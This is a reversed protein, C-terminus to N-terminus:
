AIEEYFTRARLNISKLMAPTPERMGRVVQSVFATSVGLERAWAARAGRDRCRNRIRGIVAYADVFTVDPHNSLM